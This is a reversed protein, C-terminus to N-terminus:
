ASGGLSCGLSVDSRGLSALRTLRAVSKFHKVIRDGTKNSAAESGIVIWVRAWAGCAEFGGAVIAFRTIVVSRSPRSWNGFGKASVQERDAGRGSVGSSARSGVRRKRGNFGWECVLLIYKDHRWCVSGRGDRATLSVLREAFVLRVQLGVPWGLSFFAQVSNFDGGLTIYHGGDVRRFLGGARAAKEL